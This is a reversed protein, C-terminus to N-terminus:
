WGLHPICYESICLPMELFYLDALAIIVLPTMCAMDLKNALVLNWVCRWWATKILRPLMAITGIDAILQGELASPELPNWYHYGHWAFTAKSHTDACCCKIVSHQTQELPKIKSGLVRKTICTCYLQLTNIECLKEPWAASSTRYELTTVQLPKCRPTTLSRAKSCIKPSLLARGRMKLMNSSRSLFCCHCFNPYWCKTFLLHADIWKSIMISQQTSGSDPEPKPTDTEECIDMGSVVPKQGTALKLGTVKREYDLLM